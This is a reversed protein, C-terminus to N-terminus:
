VSIKKNKLIKKVAYEVAKEVTGSEASGTMIFDNKYVKIWASFYESLNGVEDLYVEALEIASDVSALQELSKTIKRESFEVGCDSDDIIEIQM